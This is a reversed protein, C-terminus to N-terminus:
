PSHIWNPKRVDHGSVPPKRVNGSLNDPFTYALAISYPKRIDPAGIQMLWSSRYSTRFNDLHYPSASAGEGGESSPMMGDM